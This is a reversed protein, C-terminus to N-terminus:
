DGAAIEAELVSAVLTGQSEMLPLLQAAVQRYEGANFAAGAEYNRWSLLWQVQLTSRNILLRAREFYPQARLLAASADVVQRIDDACDSRFKGAYQFTVGM